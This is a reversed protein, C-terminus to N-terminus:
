RWEASQLWRSLVAIETDTLFGEHELGLGPMSMDDVGERIVRQLADPDEDYPSPLPRLAPADDMGEGHVGHCDSCEVQYMQVTDYAGTELNIYPSDCAVEQVMEADGDDDFAGQPPILIGTRWCSVSPASEELSRLFVVLRALEQDTLPGSYAMDYAAMTTGPSGTAILSHMQRNSVSSLFERTALTSGKGGGRGEEGHCSECHEAYLERGLAVDEAQMEARAAELRTPELRWYAPLAGILLAMLFLGAIRYRDLQRLDEERDLLPPTRM